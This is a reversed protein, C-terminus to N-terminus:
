KQPVRVAFLTPRLPGTLLKRSNEIRALYQMVPRDLKSTRALLRRCNCRLEEEIYDFSRAVFRKNIQEVAIVKCGGKELSHKMEDITSWQRGKKGRAYVADDVIVVGGPKVYRRCTALAKKAPYLNLMLVVDFKRASKYTDVDAVKFRVRLGKNFTCETKEKKAIDIFDGSLDVGTVDWGKLYALCFAVEGKGCGLDLVRKADWIKAQVALCWVHIPSAGMRNIEHMLYSAWPALAKPLDLSAAIRSIPKRSPM